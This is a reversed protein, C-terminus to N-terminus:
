NLFERALVLSREAEGLRYNTKILMLASTTLFPNEAIPASNIAQFKQQADWYKEANYCAVGENLLNQLEAVTQASSFNIALALLIVILITAPYNKKRM